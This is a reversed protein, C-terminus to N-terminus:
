GLLGSGSDQDHDDHEDDHHQPLASRARPQRGSRAHAVRCLGSWAVAPGGLACAARCRCAVARVCGWGATPGPVSQRIVAVVRLNRRPVASVSWSFFLLCVIRVSPYM